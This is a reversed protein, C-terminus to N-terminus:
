GGQGQPLQRFADQVAKRTSDGTRKHDKGEHQFHLNQNIEINKQPPQSAPLPIRPTAHASYDVPKQLEQYFKKSAEVFGERKMFSDFFKGVPSDSFGSVQQGTPSFLLDGKKSSKGDMKDLVEGVLKFTNATGEVAKGLYEFVKLRESLRTLAEVLHITQTTILSIDKALQNGHLANFHGFAMAIKQGLNGWAVNARDLAAIENNSYAPAKKFIEPRFVNRHMAAVVGEGLGFSKAIKNGVDPPLKQVAQQIKQMVYFTDRAKNIDFDVANALLGLGEPPAGGMLMNIMSTQVSKLSGTLEESSVGAQRAAYQWQQLSQASLGTLATFNTLNTGAQGSASMFKEFAYFAAVMGAKAELSLSTIEGFGKKVGSLAGLTKESGKVGLEAFFEAIKM